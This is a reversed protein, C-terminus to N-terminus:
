LFMTDKLLLLREIMKSRSKLMERQEEDIQESKLNNRVYIQLFLRLSARFMKLEASQAVNKFVDLCAETDNHNLIGLFIQRLFRTTTDDMQKFEIVKLTSIPLAKNLFLHTLLGVLANICTPRQKDIEKLKDWIAFKLTLMHKRDHECFEQALYAYFPNYPNERTCLHLIVNIIEREQSKSLGLHMLKEFADEYDDASVIMCFIDRRTDTNMKMKRALELLEESFKHKNSKTKELNESNGVWASGVVWWKGKEEAKLLDELSINLQTVDNGKRIFNKSIKKLHESYSDDYNPIKLMNNNKVASLVDLMFRLRSGKVVNVSAAKKNTELIYNKLALPDDKRLVFGINRLIHLICDVNKETFEKSLENMIEHMLKCDFVKFNYLQALAIVINDLTKDQVETVNKMKENFMSVFLQLFHAGVETGINAHLIAVLLIHEMLLREPTLVQSVVSETILAGLTENMDNRSNGMYLNEVQKAINHLNSLALRNLLGKLQKKLRNLKELTKKDEGNAQAMKARLAPPIYKQESKNILSGDKAHLKGYIDEWTGDSNVKAAGKIKPKSAQDENDEDDELEDLDSDIDNKPLPGKGKEQKSKNKKSSQEDIEEDEMEGEFDSEEDEMEGELKLKKNGKETKNSNRKRKVPGSDSQADDSFEEDIDSMDEEEMSNEDDDSADDSMSDDESLQKNSSKKAKQTKNKKGTILELDEAFEDDLNMFQKEAESIEKMQEPDCMELIYDLGSEVFMKPLGKSKKKNLKLRKELMKINRDEEENAMLLQKKRQGAMQKKLTELEQMEKKREREFENMSDKKNKTKEAKQPPKNEVNKAPKENQVPKEPQQPKRHKSRSFYENKRAKKQLRKEKRLQKRTPARSYM